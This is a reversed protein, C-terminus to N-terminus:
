SLFSIGRYKGLKRLREALENNFFIKSILTQGSRMETLRGAIFNMKFPEGPSFLNKFEM